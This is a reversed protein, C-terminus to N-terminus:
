LFACPVTGHGSETVIFVCPPGFQEPKLGGPANSPTKPKDLEIVFSTDAQWLEETALELGKEPVGAWAPHVDEDEVVREADALVEDLAEDLAEEDLVESDGVDYNTLDSHVLWDADAEIRYVTFATTPTSTSIFIIFSLFLAHSFLILGNSNAWMAGPLKM